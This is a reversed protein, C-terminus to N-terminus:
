NCMAIKFPGMADEKEEILQKSSHLVHEKYYERTSQEFEIALAGGSEDWFWLM